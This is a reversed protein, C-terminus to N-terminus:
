PARRSPWVRRRRLAGQVLPQRKELGLWRMVRLMRLWGPPLIVPDILVLARFLEPRRIAALLTYVGGMSHGVGIVGQLGIADLGEVLDEALTHWTPASGPRSGSWLPRAPLGIVHYGGRWGSGTAPHGSGATPPPGTLTEAFPRYSGPPFGNAHALHVVQGEGGFDEMLELGM